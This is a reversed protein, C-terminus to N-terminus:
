VEVAAEVAPEVAPPSSRRLYDLTDRVLSREIVATAVITVVVYLVVEGLAIAATRTGPEALRALLVVGAAPVSPAISRACHGVMGWQPFLRGLFYFRGALVYELRHAHFVGDGIPM